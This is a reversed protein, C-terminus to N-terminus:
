NKLTNFNGNYTDTIKPPIDGKSIRDVYNAAVNLPGIVADLTDNVGQVIKRFDGHHQSADARTALKGAVAATSLLNADAVLRNVADICTNLNNRLINFDGHYDEVIKAPVDGRALREVYNAAVDLPVVVAELTANFGAVINRYEGGLREVRARVKLHGQRAAQELTRGEEILVGLQTHIHQVAQELQGIEDERTVAPMQALDGAAIRHAAATALGVARLVRSLMASFVMTLLLLFVCSFISRALGRWAREKLALSHAVIEAAIADEFLKMADIKATITAFWQAPAIGFGGEYSKDLVRSRMALTEKAANSALLKDLEANQGPTALTRFNALYIDQSTLVGILRRHLAPDLAKDATLAANVTARERGAYEKAGLFMGYVSFYRMMEADKLSPSVVAVTALYREILESFFAFSEAGTARLAGIEKRREDIQRVAANAQDLKASFATPLEDARQKLAASLATRRAETAARQQELEAQFKEGKSGIFGASLGREKQLEHVLASGAIAVEVVVGIRQGERLRGIQDGVDVALFGAVGVVLVSFLLLLRARISKMVM